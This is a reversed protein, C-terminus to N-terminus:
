IAEMRKMIEKVRPKKFNRTAEIIKAVAKKDRVIIRHEKITVTRASFPIENKRLIEAIDIMKRINSKKAKFECYIRDRNRDKCISWTAKNGLDEIGLVTNESNKM